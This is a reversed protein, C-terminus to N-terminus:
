SKLQDDIMGKLTDLQYSPALQGNIYISPTSQVDIAEGDAKDAAIINQVASGTVDQQYRAADLGLDKAYGAFVEAANPADEWLKQTEYLKDHMEWFKGQLAAAEAASAAAVANKHMPLPFNRFVLTIKGDYDKQLQHIVPYAAGCAPCQYDGFEVVKVSGTGTTHSDAHILKAQNVTPGAPSKSSSGGFAFLALMGGTIVVLIAILIKAERSM